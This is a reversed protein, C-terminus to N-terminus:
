SPIVLSGPLRARSMDARRPSRMLRTARCQLEFSVCGDDGRTLIQKREDEDDELDEDEGDPGMNEDDEDGDAAGNRDHQDQMDADSDEDAVTRQKKRAQAANQELKVRKKDPRPSSGGADDADDTALRRRGSRPGSRSPTDRDSDSM